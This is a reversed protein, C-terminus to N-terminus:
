EVLSVHVAHLGMTTVIHDMWDTTPPQKTEPTILSRIILSPRGPSKPPTLPLKFTKAIPHLHSQNPAMNAVLAFNESDITTRQKPDIIAVLYNLILLGLRLGRTFLSSYGDFFFHPLPGVFADREDQGARLMSISVGFETYIGRLAARTAQVDQLLTAQFKAGEKSSLDHLQRTRKVYGPIKIVELFGREVVDTYLSSNPLKANDAAIQENLARWEPEELFCAEGEVLAATILFNRYVIYMARGFGTLHAEPGRLKMLTRIGSAHRIWADSSTCNHKEFIALAIASALVKDSKATEEDSLLTALGRLARIYLTQSADLYRTDDHLFGMYAFTCARVAWDFCSDMSGRRQDVYEVWNIPVRSETCRFFCPFSALVYNTFIQTQQSSIARVSLSPSIAEDLPLSVTKYEFKSLSARSPVDTDKDTCQLQADVCAQCGRPVRVM